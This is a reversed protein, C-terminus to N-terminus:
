LPAASWWEAIDVDASPQLSQPSKSTGRHSIYLLYEARAPDDEFSIVMKATYFYPQLPGPPDSVIWGHRTHRSGNKLGPTETHSPLAAVTARAAAPSRYGLITYSMYSQDDIVRDCQWAITWSSSRMPEDRPVFGDDPEYATCEADQYGEGADVGGPPLLRPFARTSATLPDAAGSPTVARPGSTAPSAATDSSEEGGMVVAILAVAAIVVAVVAVALVGILAGTVRSRRQVGGDHAPRYGVPPGGQYGPGRAGGRTGAFVGGARFRSGGQGGRPDSGPGTSEPNSPGVGPGTSEPNPSGGPAAAWSLPSGVGRGTSEPNSPGVGPGSLEPNSPSGSGAPAWDQSPGVGPGSVEPDSSGGPAWGQSPGVGPGSVEPNSSGGFPAVAGSVSPSAGSGASEPNSPAAASSTQEPNSRGADSGPGDEVGPHGARTGRNSEGASAAGDEALDVDTRDPEPSRADDVRRTSRDDGSGTEGSELASSPADVSQGSVPDLAAGSNGPGPVGVPQGSVPDVSGGANGPGPVGVPQGSIPDSPGGPRASGAARVPHGAGPDLPGGPHGPDGARVPHGSPDVSGGPYGSGPVGVPQGSAPDVSGGSHGSVPGGAPQGQPAAPAPNHQAAPYDSAVNQPPVPYASAPVQPPAQYPPSPNQPAVPQPAVPQPAVPPSAPHPAVPSGGPHPAGAYPGGPQPSVPYGPGAPPFQQAPAPYAGPHSPPVVPNGRVVAGPPPTPLRPGSTTTLAHKAAAAFEACTNYRYEPRKAMGAALVADLAPNLGRRRVALPPLALQLHGHIIDAPNDADFPGVGALLWYLACALAYQDTRPDLHGGTMQEPSAYALTATFMGTQTLHTSDERLRAIGFDTLFVREGQGASSRALMINAPKVDRHLVGMGHAYDLADAVGEIIQVAREPPLTMPNVTAADVGDIYQMAIWLQGNESGRDYVTVISPHDLQAALDAEREFRARVENDTYLNPNLLKLATQRSFRPHRALYVSGMGGQGLLREVTYGAFVEGSDIM